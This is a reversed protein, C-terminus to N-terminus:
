LRLRSKAQLVDVAIGSGRRVREDELNLQKRINDGNQQALDILESQRLVNLYTSAGEFLVTQRTNVLSLGSVERQIKSARRNAERKGGDWILEKLTATYNKATYDFPGNAARFAPTSDYEYGAGGTIDLSPFYPSLTARVGRDAAQVQAENSKIRPSETVLARLEDELPAALAVHTAITVSATVALLYRCRM